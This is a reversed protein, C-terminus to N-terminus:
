TLVPRDIKDKIDNLADVAQRLTNETAFGRMSDTLAKLSFQVQQTFQKGADAAAKTFDRGSKSTAATFDQGSKAVGGYATTISSSSKQTASAAEKTATAIGGPGTTLDVAARVDTKAKSINTAFSGSATSASKIGEAVKGANTGSTGLDATIQGALTKQRALLPELNFLPDLKSRNEAFGRPLAAGAAIAERGVNKLANGLHTQLNAGETQATLGIIRLTEAAGKGIGPIFQMVNAVAFALNEQLKKGIFEITLVAAKGLASDRGFIKGLFEGVALFAAQASKVFENVLSLAQIKATVFMLELGQGINGSAMGQIAVKVADINRSFNLAGDAARLFNNLYDSLVMGFRTADIEAIKKTVEALGPAVNVLLGTAFELGKKKIADINDGIDAMAKGSRNIAEPYSGLQAQAQQINKALELFLPLADTGSKNLLLQAAAARKTPDEIQQIKEAFLQMLEVPTKDAVDELSLQFWGLVTAAKTGEQGADFIFKQLKGIVPGVDGASMGALEFARQLVALNGASEGTKLSLDDLAGAAAIADMFTRISVQAAIFGGVFTAVAVAAKAFMAPLESTSKGVNQVENGFGELRGELNEITPGLSKDHGLFDTHSEAM